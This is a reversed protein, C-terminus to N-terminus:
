QHDKNRTATPTRPLHWTAGVEMTVPTTNERTKVWFPNGALSTIDASTLRGARWAMSVMFGGRARLGTVQGEPWAAPLAPLLELAYRGDQHEHSQLLMETMAATIGFNGDIQFPPYTALLNPLMNKALLGRVMDHAKDGKRLRAWVASRWPWTWSRSSDGTTGRATLSVAAAQAFEPTTDPTIQRGPFVAFLHSTHRHEDKPDDRDERWEQLQGWRGIRPGLLRDRAASVQARFDADIGLETAAALTNTFLEWVIQQDYSAGPQTKMHPDGAPGHEPSWGTPSILLGDADPVLHGLWYESLEKLVPYADNRLFERDGGFEYHAWLHQSLWAPGPEHVRWTSGGGMANNTSYILWGATTRLKPIDVRKRVTALTRIWALLPLHCEPLATPEALWYNMQVNINTTYACYWAPKLDRNWIGQLTAPLDGPRSSGMLLYRGYQFLLAELAPDAVGERYASLREDTPKRPAAGLDLQVRNFLRQHDEIHATRLDAYPKVAAATIQARVRDRPHGGRWDRELDNVFATGAALIVTAADAQQVDLVDTGAVLSGGEIRVLVQAQYDLGNTLRGTASLHDADATITAQHADTLRIRTSISKPRDATLRVVLVQDVASALYERRYGVGERTFSLAAIGLSLDLERRYGEVAGTAPDTLLLDGFPQYSGMERSSGLWLTDENFQIREKHADGFVMAGLRGNGIPLAQNWDAAPQRYWLVPPEVAALAAVALLICFARIM